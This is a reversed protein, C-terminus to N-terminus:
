RAGQALATRNMARLRHYVAPPVIRGTVRVEGVCSDPALLCFLGTHRPREGPVRRADLRVPENRSLPRDIWATISTLVFEHGMPVGQRHMGTVAAQRVAEVLETMTRQDGGGTRLFHHEPAPLVDFMQHDPTIQRPAGILLNEPHHRHALKALWQDRRHVAPTHRRPRPVSREPRPSRRVRIGGSVATHQQTVTLAWQGEWGDGGAVRIEAPPSFECFSHFSFSFESTWVAHGPRRAARDSRAQAAEAAQLAGEIILMAPVHDLEHDFFFSNERDVALKASWERPGYQQFDFLNRQAACPQVSM